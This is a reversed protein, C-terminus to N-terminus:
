FLETPEKKVQFGAASYEKLVDMFSEKTSFYAKARKIVGKFPTKKLAANFQAATPQKYDDYKGYFFVIEGYQKPLYVYRGGMVDAAAGTGWIENKVDTILNGGEIVYLDIM